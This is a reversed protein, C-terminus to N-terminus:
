HEEPAESVPGVLTEFRARVRDQHEVLRAQLREIDPEESARVVVDQLAKPANGPDFNDSLCVRLIQTLDHYLRIAPLLCEAEGVDLLGADVCLRLTEATNSHLIQPHKHAHILQLSQAIFEIDVLGGAVQKINWIDGTGKEKEIRLRMAAIDSRIKTADRPASLISVIEQRVQRSFDADGAVIRARTLAMHEWTWADEKHYSRFSRISTALPGSNGSPRLRFDVEYLEGEATPASLATILRKTLRTYFQTPALPKAGDSQVVGEDHDYLLMLDLDSGATM